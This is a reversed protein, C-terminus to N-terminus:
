RVAKVGVSNPYIRVDVQLGRRQAAARVTRAFVRPEGHFDRGEVLTHARGDFWRDWPYAEPRGPRRHVQAPCGDHLESSGLYVQGCAPCVTSNIARDLWEALNM